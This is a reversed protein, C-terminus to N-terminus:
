VNLSSTYYIESTDPSAQAADMSPFINFRKYFPYGMTTPVREDELNCAYGYFKIKVKYCLLYPPHHHVIHFTSGQYKIRFCFLAESKTAEEIEYRLHLIFNRLSANAFYVDRPCYKYMFINFQDVVGINRIYLVVSSYVGHM